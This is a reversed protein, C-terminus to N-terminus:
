GSDEEPYEEDLNFLPPLSEKRKFSLFNKNFRIGIIGLFKNDPTLKIEIEYKDFPYIVSKDPQFTNGTQFKEDIDLYNIEEVLV